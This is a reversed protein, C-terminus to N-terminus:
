GSHPKAGGRYFDAIARISAASEPARARPGFAAPDFGNFGAPEVGEARATRIAEGALKRWLPLLEPRDLTAAFDPALEPLIVAFMGDAAMTAVGTPPTTSTTIGTNGTPRSGVFTLLDPQIFGRQWQGWQNVSNTNAFDNDRAFATGTAPDIVPIGNWPAPLKRNVRLDANKAWDRDHAALADRQMAAVLELAALAAEQRHGPGAQIRNALRALVEDPTGRGRHQAVEIAEKTSSGEERDQKREQDLLQLRQGVAVLDM